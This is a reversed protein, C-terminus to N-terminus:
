FNPLDSTSCDRFICGIQKTDKWVLQTFHLLEEGNPAESGDRASIRWNAAEGGWMHNTYAPTNDTSWAYNQAGQCNNGLKLLIKKIM